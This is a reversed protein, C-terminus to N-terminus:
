VCIRVYTITFSQNAKRYHSSAIRVLVWAAFRVLGQQAQQAYTRVILCGNFVARGPEDEPEPEPEQESWPETEDDTQLLWQPGVYTRLQYTRVYTGCLPGRALNHKVPSCKTTTVTRVAGAAGAHQLPPWVHSQM